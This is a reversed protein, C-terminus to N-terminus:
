NTNLSEYTAKLGEALSVQPKWSLVDNAKTITLRSRLIDGTRPPAYVAPADVGAFGALTKYVDNVTSETDTGINILENTTPCDLAKLFANAVDTVYVFDRTQEGTGFITCPKGASLLESFIAIVGAEGHPDQRPGYVNALALAMYSLGYLKEYLRLYDMVAAKSVGYHSQPHSPMTEIAPPEIEGYITGGSAAYVVRQCNTKHAAELVRVSGVINTVADFTPQNTGVAVSPQAALHCIAEPKIRAIVADVAETTIDCDIVEASSTALNEKKGSSFNDIVSVQHGADILIDTVHSGIFGAGGTVVVRM